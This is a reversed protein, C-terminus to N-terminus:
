PRVMANVNDFRTYEGNWHLDIDAIPGNRHKAVILEAKNDPVTGEETFDKYVDDRYIFMVIDSDQEISGSDRLDALMPRKNARREVDRSLQSLALVPLNTELALGKLGSTIKSIEQVRNEYQKGNITVQMLGIYDVIVLEIGHESQMRRVKSRLEIPSLGATDDIYIPMGSLEGLGYTIEDWGNNPEWRGTRLDQLPIGMLQSLLRAVLQEKGMELSFVAVPIGKRAVNFAINLMLSSKGMAPRAALTILDTKQLGGTLRDLDSFGTEVGIYEGRHQHLFDLKDMYTGIIIDKLSMAGHINRKQSIDYILAEAKSLAQPDRDFADGAIKSAAFILRRLVADDEVIHGYYEVNGSTPVQNILSTIYSAGGVDKLKDQRELEDCITIFDAPGRQEYLSVITEYITKHADYHFDEAHLFDVVHIIAEPDIIISGLVGHEAEISHPLLKEM